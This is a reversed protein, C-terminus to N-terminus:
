SPANAVLYAGAQRSGPDCVAKIFIDTPVLVRGNLCRLTLRRFVPGTVVYAEGSKRVFDRVASEIAQHRPQTGARPSSTPSGTSRRSVTHNRGGAHFALGEDSPSPQCPCPMLGDPPRLVTEKDLGDFNTRCCLLYDL